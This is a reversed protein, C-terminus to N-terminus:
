FPAGSSFDSDDDDDFLFGAEFFDSPFGAEDFFASSLLFSSSFSSFFSSLLSSLLSCLLSSFSSSLFSSSSSLLVVVPVFLFCAAELFSSESLFSALGAELDLGGLLARSLFTLKRAQYREFILRHYETTM